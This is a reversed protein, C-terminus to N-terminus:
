LQWNSELLTTGTHSHPQKITDEGANIKIVKFSNSVSKTILM